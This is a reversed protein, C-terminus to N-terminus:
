GGGSRHSIQQAHQGAGYVRQRVEGVRGVIKRGNAICGAGHQEVTAAGSCVTTAKVQHACPRLCFQGQLWVLRSSVKQLAQTFAELLQASGAERVFVLQRKSATQDTVQTVVKASLEFLQGGVGPIVQVQGFRLQAQIGPRQDTVM